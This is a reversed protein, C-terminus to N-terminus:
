INLRTIKLLTLRHALEQHVFPQLSHASTTDYAQLTLPHLSTHWLPFSALEKQQVNNKLFHLQIVVLQQNKSATFSHAFPCMIFYVFAPIILVITLLAIKKLPMWVDGSM